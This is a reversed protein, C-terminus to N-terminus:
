VIHFMDPTPFSGQGPPTLYGSLENLDLPSLSESESSGKFAANPIGAQAPEPAPEPAPEVLEFVFSWGNARTRPPPVPPPTPIFSRKQSQMSWFAEDSDGLSQVWQEYAEEKRRKEQMAETYYQMEMEYHEMEMAEYKKIFPNPRPLRRVYLTVVKNIEDVDEEFSRMWAPVARAM